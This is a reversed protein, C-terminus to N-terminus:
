NPGRGHMSITSEIRPPEIEVDWQAVMARHPVAVAVRAGPRSLTTKLSEEMGDSAFAFIRGKSQVTAHGPMSSLVVRGVVITTNLRYEVVDEELRKDAEALGKEEPVMWSGAIASKLVELKVEGGIGTRDLETGMEAPVQYRWIKLIRREAQVLFFSSDWSLGKRGHIRLKSGKVATVRGGVPAHGVRELGRVAPEILWSHALDGAGLALTVLLQSGAAAEVAARDLADLRNVKIRYIENEASILVHDPEFSYLVRGQILSTEAALLGGKSAVFAVFATFIVMRRKM